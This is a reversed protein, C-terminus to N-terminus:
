FSVVNNEVFEYLLEYMFVCVIKFDRVSGMWIGKKLLIVIM